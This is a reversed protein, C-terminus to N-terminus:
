LDRWGLNDDVRIYLVPTGTDLAIALQESPEAVNWSTTPEFKQVAVREVVQDTLYAVGVLADMIPKVINDVDGEM